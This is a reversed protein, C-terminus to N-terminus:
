KSCMRILPSSCFSNAHIPLTNGSQMNMTKWSTASGRCSRFSPISWNSFFLVRRYMKVVNSAIPFKRLLVSTLLESSMLPESTATKERERGRHRKSVEEMEEWAGVGEGAGRGVYKNPLSLLPSEIHVLIHKGSQSDAGCVTRRCYFRKDLGRNFRAGDTQPSFPLSTTHNHTKWCNTNTRSSTHSSQMQTESQSKRTAKRTGQTCVDMHVDICSHVEPIRSGFICFPFMLWWCWFLYNGYM